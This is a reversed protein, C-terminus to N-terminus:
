RNQIMVNTKTTNNALTVPTVEGFTYETQQEPYVYKYSTLYTKESRYVTDKDYQGLSSVVLDQDIDTFRKVACVKPFVPSWFAYEIAEASELNAASQPPYNEALTFSVEKLPELHYKMMNYAYARVLDLTVGDFLPALDLVSEQEGIDEYCRQGRECLDRYDQESEPIEETSIVGDYIEGYYDIGFERKVLPGIKFTHATGDMDMYKVMVSNIITQESTTPCSVSGNVRGGIRSEIRNSHMELSDLTYRLALIQAERKKPDTETITEVQQSWDGTPDCGFDMGDRIWLRNGGTYNAVENLNEDPTKSIETYDVVFAKDATFFVRAGCIMGLTGLVQWTNAGERVKLRSKDFYGKGVVNTIIEYNQFPHTLGYNTTSLVSLILESPPGSAEVLDGPWTMATLMAARCYGKITMTANNSEYETVIYSGYGVGKAVIESIGADLKFGSEETIAGDKVDDLLEPYEATMRKMNVKLTISEFPYTPGGQISYSQIVNLEDNYAKQDFEDEDEEAPAGSSATNGKMLLFEKAVGSSYYTVGVYKESKQVFETYENAENYCPLVQGTRPDVEAYLPVYQGTVSILKKRNNDVSLLRYNISRNSVSTAAKFTMRGGVVATISGSITDTDGAAYSFSINKLYVNKITVPYLDTYPKLESLEHGDADRLHIADGYDDRAVNLTLTYGDFQAQWRNILSSVARVWRENTWMWSTYGYMSDDEYTSGDSRYPNRRVFQFTYTNSTQSELAFTCDTPLSVIETVSISKNLTDTVATITGLDCRLGYPADLQALGYGNNM